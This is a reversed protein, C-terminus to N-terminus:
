CGTARVYDDQSYTGGSKVTPKKDVNVPLADISTELTCRNAINIMGALPKQMGEPNSMIMTNCANLFKNTCRTEHKILEAEKFDILNSTSSIVKYVPFEHESYKNYVTKIIDIIKVTISFHFDSTIICLEDINCFNIQKDISDLAYLINSCITTSKEELSTDCSPVAKTNVGYEEPKNIIDATRTANTKHNYIKGGCLIIKSHKKTNIHQWYIQSAIYAHQKILTENENLHDVLTLIINM